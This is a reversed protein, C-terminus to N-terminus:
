LKTTLLYEWKICGNLKSLEGAKERYAAVTKSSVSRQEITWKMVMYNECLVKMSPVSKRGVLWMGYATRFYKYLTNTQSVRKFVVDKTTVFPTNNTQMLHVLADSLVVPSWVVNEEALVWTQLDILWSTPQDILWWTSINELWSNILNNWTFWTMAWGTYNQADSSWIVTGWEIFTLDGSNNVWTNNEGSSVLTITKEIIINGSWFISESLTNIWEITYDIAFQQRQTNSWILKGENVWANFQYATLWIWVILLIYYFRTMRLKGFRYNWILRLSLICISFFIFWILAPILIRAWLIIAGLHSYLFVSLVISFWFIYDKPLFLKRGFHIKREVIDRRVIIMVVLVLIFLWLVVYPSYTFVMQWVMALLLLFISTAFFYNKCFTHIIERFSKKKELKGEYEKEKELKRRNEGIKEEQTKKAEEKGKKALYSIIQFVILFVLNAIALTYFNEDSRLYGIIWMQVSFFYLALLFNRTKMTESPLLYFTLLKNCKNQYIYM